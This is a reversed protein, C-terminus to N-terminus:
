CKTKKTVEIEHPLKMNKYAIFGPLAVVDFEYEACPLFFITADGSNVQKEQPWWTRATNFRLKRSDRKEASWFNMLEVMKDNQVKRDKCKARLHCEVCTLKQKSGFCNISQVIYFYHTRHSHCKHCRITQVSTIKWVFNNKNVEREDWM